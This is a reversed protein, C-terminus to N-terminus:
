SILWWKPFLWNSLKSAKLSILKFDTPPKKWGGMQFIYACTLNARKGLFTWNFMFFIHVSVFFRSENNGNGRKTDLMWAAPLLLAQVRPLEFSRKGALPPPTANLPYNSTGIFARYLPYKHIIIELFGKFFVIFVMPVNPLPVGLQGKICLPDM